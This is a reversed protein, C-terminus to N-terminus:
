DRHSVVVGAIVVLCGFVQWWGVGEHLVVLAIVLGFLPVLNISAAVLATSLHRM